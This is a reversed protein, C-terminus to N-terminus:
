FSPITLARLVYKRRLCCNNRRKSNKELKITRRKWMYLYEAYTLCCQAIQVYTYCALSDFQVDLSTKQERRLKALTSADDRHRHALSNVTYNNRTWYSNMCLGRREAGALAMSCRFRNRTEVFVHNLDVSECRKEDGNRNRTHASICSSLSFRTGTLVSFFLLFFDVHSSCFTLSEISSFSIIELFTLLIGFASSLRAESQQSSSFIYISLCCLACM